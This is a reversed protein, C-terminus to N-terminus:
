YGENIWEVFNKYQSPFNMYKRAKEGRQRVQELDHYYAAELESECYKIHKLKNDRKLM